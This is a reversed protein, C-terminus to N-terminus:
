WDPAPSDVATTDPDTEPEPEPEQPLPPPPGDTVQRVAGEGPTAPGHRTYETAPYASVTVAPRHTHLAFAIIDDGSPTRFHSSGGAAAVIYQIGGVSYTVPTGHVGGGANFQWLLEGTDSRFADLSGTGQGVLLLNGATALAGSHVPAPTRRQWRIRGDALDIATVTGWHEEDPTFRVTGGLWLQGRSYSQLEATYVMPQHVGGVFVLGSRRDYAVHAGANGGNLGPVVRIGDEGRAPRTFMREQPVFNDSRLIPRGDDARFVYVWGTRGAFGVYRDGDRDFLFPPSGGSLGWVDAPLYQAHWVREGSVADIAVISGTYLNDGPRVTADVLPAPGEVNVFLRRTAPDFAPTTAIGGGGIRWIEGFGEVTEREEQISRNLPSGFPDTPTFDGWWGGQEDSPITHWRWLEEGSRADFAALFGRIGYRQGAVGVYVRGEVALPAMVASYGAEAEALDAEWRPEGTRADIAMLRADLGAVFVADEWVAVGRNIPGCCLTVIEPEPDYTWLEQGTAANLAFVRGGATTAYLTNGVIVPSTELAGEIGTSYMWVPVLHHVNGAHIQNLPSFSHNALDGGPAPWDAGAGARIMSDTVLPFAPEPLDDATPRVFEEERREDRDCAAGAAAALVTLAGAILRISPRPTLSLGTSRAPRCSRIV